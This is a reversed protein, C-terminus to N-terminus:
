IKPEYKLTNEFEMQEILEFYTDLDDYFVEKYQEEYNTSQLYLDVDTPIEELEPPITTYMHNERNTTGYPMM